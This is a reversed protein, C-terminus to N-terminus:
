SMARRIWGNLFEVNSPRIQVLLNYYAAQAQRYASLLTASDIANAAALTGPGFGGDVAIQTSGNANICKQLFKIARSKGLNVSTDFVKCAMDTSTLQDYPYPAWFDRYYIAIADAQTLNAIDLTPYATQSIGYKTAGGPDNPNNSYGGEFQLTIAIARNFTDSYAM